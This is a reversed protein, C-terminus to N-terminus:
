KMNKEIKRRFMEVITLPIKYKKSIDISTAEPNEEFEKQIFILIDEKKM